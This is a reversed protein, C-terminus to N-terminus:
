AYACVEQFVFLLFSFFSVIQFPKLETLFKQLYKSSIIKQYKTYNKAFQHSIKQFIKKFFYKKYNNFNLSEFLHVVSGNAFFQSILIIIIRTISIIKNGNTGFFSFIIKSFYFISFYYQICISPNCFLYPFINWLMIWLCYNIFKNYHWIVNM